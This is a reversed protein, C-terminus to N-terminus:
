KVRDAMGAQRTGSKLMDETLLADHPESRSSRWQTAFAEVTVRGAKPDVYRGTVVSATTEDLWRTADVKRAFHRAHEKGSADRYRARWQGHTRKAISAM